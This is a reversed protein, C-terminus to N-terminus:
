KTMVTLQSGISYAASRTRRCNAEVRHAKDQIRQPLRGLRQRVELLAQSHVLAEVPRCTLARALHALKQNASSLSRGAASLSGVLGKVSVLLLVIVSSASAGSYRFRPQ